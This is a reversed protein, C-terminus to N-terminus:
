HVGAMLKRIMKVQLALIAASIFLAIAMGGFLMVLSHVDYQNFLGALKGAIKNGFANALFWVGMTSSLFRAPALKTATSLGVPSLCMEGIVQVTYVAFLWWPSVLGHQALVSAPVMLAISLGLFLLGYVFKTPSSPENDGLKVWLASFL